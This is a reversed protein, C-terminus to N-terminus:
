QSFSALWHRVTDPDLQDIDIDMEDHILPPVQAHSILRHFPREDIEADGFLDEHIKEGPRLHTFEIAIQRGSQAIMRNAVDIIRVPSGM